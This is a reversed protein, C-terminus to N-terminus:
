KCKDKYPILKIHQNLELRANWDDQEQQSTQRRFYQGGPPKNTNKYKSHLDVEVTTKLSKQQRSQMQKATKTGAVVKHTGKTVIAEM